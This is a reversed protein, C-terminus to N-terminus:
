ERHGAAIAGIYALSSRMDKSTLRAKDREKWAENREAELEDRQQCAREFERQLEDYAKVPVHDDATLEKLHKKLQENERGLADLDHILSASQSENRDKLLQAIDKNARNCQERMRTNASELTQIAQRRETSVKRTAELEQKYWELEQYKSKLDDREKEADRCRKWWGQREERLENCHSGLCELRTKLMDREKLLEDLGELIRDEQESKAKM